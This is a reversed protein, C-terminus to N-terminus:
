GSISGRDRIVEMRSDLPDEGSYGLRGRTLLVILVAPLGFGILLFLNTNTVIPAPFLTPFLNADVSAHLLVALFLSGRNHNFVWTFIIALAICVLCFVPFNKLFTAFSTGPGGHQAPTLFHPLHWGAWLVALLLTGRLPGYRRQLRPLAFGRWGTEEALPGGLFFVVFFQELYLVLFIPKPPVYSALAGPLALIGLLSMAPIGLLIFLYWPWATRWFAFRHLLRGLGADGESIGTMLFAALAPGLFTGIPFSLISFSNVPLVHWISLVYPIWVIWSFCFAMVFFSVLPHRGMTQRLGAPSSAQEVDAPAVKILRDGSQTLESPEATGEPSPSLKEAAQEATREGSGSM